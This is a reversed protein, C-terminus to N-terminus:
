HQKLRRIQQQWGNPLAHVVRRASRRGRNPTLALQAHVYSRGRPILVTTTLATAITANALRLKYPETGIGLEVIRDGRICADQIAGTLATLAPRLSGYEQDWGGNWYAVTGGAAILIQVARIGGDVTLVVLRLRDESLHTCASRLMAGVGPSALNSGGRAVWREHHLRTFAEIAADREEPTRAVDVSGGSSALDRLVRRYQGRFGPSRQSLWAAFELGAIDVVPAPMRGTQLRTPRFRSPWSSQLSSSWDPEEPCWELSVLTPRAAQLAAAIAVTEDESGSLIGLGHAYGSSLLRLDRRGFRGHHVFYPAIASLSGEREVIVVYLNTGTPRREEWWPLLWGPASYPRGAAVALADWAPIWRQLERVESVIHAGGGAASM